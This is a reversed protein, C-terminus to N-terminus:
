GITVSVVVALALRALPILLVKVNVPGDAGEADASLDSAVILSVGSASMNANFCPHSLRHRQTVPLM